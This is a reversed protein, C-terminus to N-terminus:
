FRSKGVSMQPTVQVSVSHCTLPCDPFSFTTKSENSDKSRRDGRPRAEWGGHEAGEAAGPRKRLESKEAGSDLTNM